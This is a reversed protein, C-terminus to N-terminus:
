RAAHEGREAFAASVRRVREVNTEAVV